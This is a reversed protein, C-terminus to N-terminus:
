GKMPSPPQSGSDASSLGHVTKEWYFPKVILQFLAKYAAVSMFVWYLPTLLGYHIM